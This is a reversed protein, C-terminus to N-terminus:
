QNKICFVVFEYKTITFMWATNLFILLCFHSSFPGMGDSIDGFLFTKLLLFGIRSLWPVKFQYCSVIWFDFSFGVTRVCSNFNFNKRLAKESIEEMKSENILIRVFLGFILIRWCFRLSANIEVNSWISYM